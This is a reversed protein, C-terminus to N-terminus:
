KATLRLKVFSESFTVQMRYFLGAFRLNRKSELPSSLMISELSRNAVKTFVGM